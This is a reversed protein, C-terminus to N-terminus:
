PIQPFLLHLSEKLLRMEKPCKICITDKWDTAYGKMFIIHISKKRMIFYCISTASIKSIASQSFLFIFNAQSGGELSLSTLITNCTRLNLHGGPGPLYCTDTLAPGATLASRALKSGGPGRTSLELVNKSQPFTFMSSGAM